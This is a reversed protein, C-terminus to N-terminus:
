EEMDEEILFYMSNERIYQWTDHSLSKNDIILHHYNPRIEAGKSTILTISWNTLNYRTINKKLGAVRILEDNPDIFILTPINTNNFNNKNL